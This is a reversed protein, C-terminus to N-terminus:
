DKLSKATKIYDDRFKDKNELLTWCLIKYFHTETEVTTILMYFDNENVNFTMEVQAHKKQNSKFEVVDTITRNKSEIQYDKIFFNLFEKSDIFTTGLSTLEDKSDPIVIIYAEKLTNKYQLTASDNLDYTKTLYNPIELTYCHGGKETTFEQSFSYSTIFFTVIYFFFLRM